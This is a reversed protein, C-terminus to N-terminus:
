LLYITFKNDQLIRYEIPLSYLFFFFVLFIGDGFDLKTVIPSGRFCLYVVFM